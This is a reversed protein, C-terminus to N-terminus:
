ADAAAVAPAAGGLVGAEVSPTPLGGPGAPPEAQGGGATAARAGRADGSRWEDRSLVAPGAKPVMSASWQPGWNEM